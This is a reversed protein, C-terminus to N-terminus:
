VSRSQVARRVRATARKLAPDVPDALNTAVATIPIRNGRYGLVDSFLEEDQRLKVLDSLIFTGEAASTRTACM